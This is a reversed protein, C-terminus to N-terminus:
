STKKSRHRIFPQTFLQSAPSKLCWRALQSTVTISIKWLLSRGPRPSWTFALARLLNWIDAQFTKPTMSYLAVFCIGMKQPMGYKKTPQEVCSQSSRHYAHVLASLRSFLHWVASGSRCFKPQDPLSEKKIMYLNQCFKAETQCTESRIKFVPSIPLMVVSVTLCKFIPRFNPPALKQMGQHWGASPQTRHPWSMPAQWGRTCCTHM